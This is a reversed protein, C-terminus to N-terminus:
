VDEKSPSIKHDINRQKFTKFQKKTSEMYHETMLMMQEFGKDVLNQIKKEHDAISTKFSPQQIGSMQKLLSAKTSKIDDLQQKFKTCIHDAHQIAQLLKEHVNDAMDISDKFSELNVKNTTVSAQIDQHTQKIENQIRELDLM